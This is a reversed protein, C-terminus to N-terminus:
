GTDCELVVGDELLKQYLGLFLTAEGVMSGQDNPNVLGNKLHDEPGNGWRLWKLM